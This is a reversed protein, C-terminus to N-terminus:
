TAPEKTYYDSYERRYHRGYYYPNRRVDVRNLVAGVYKVKALDLQELAAKAAGRSTMEAGVVFVVGTASHAIISADTVAMVPPSDVIVWDFHDNLSHMFNNFKRSGLLEAPNPPHKGAAILWLNPTETVKVADDAKADGVMVNSLGPELDAAFFEHMKPRRMDADILLVRQGALALSMALNASVVSKGEGPGTSTVVISKPGADASSFLVNTRIGRFAEAFEMPTGDGILPPGTTKKRAMLPVMGLFPLGLQTKIEDPQKIRSDLYEFFFSLAIGLFCGGFIALLLNNTKNPSSPSRPTEAPDVVRINSTKLEGSIGTERSREQLATFMTQNSTADRQLVGYQISNRNLAQAEASQQDLSAQLARENTLAAQYDNRFAQVVKQVEAGIRIETTEIASLVKVMDPHRAGLKEDMQAKQRQLENLQGKLQQIFTNNLIAPFTDVATRDQQIGRLQNYVSEKEIRETRARTVAANLDALRQVVINQRDELAVAGTQERYQQLAQESQELAQRQEATRATLFETAEKTALFKFELNQAIYQRALANAVRSALAPDSSRVSVDVLRSNRIPTVTLGGLFRDIIRSQTASEAAGPSEAVTSKAPMAFYGRVFQVGAGIWASPNLSVAAPGTGAFLPHEWLKEVELTRRALARSQLIRYQTQYYDNTTKNQEYVEEFKVVNPNDNEILIQVRASFIPTATFTYVTVSGVVLLLATIATWRRKHLVRLYDLLHVEDGAVAQGYGAGYGGYGPPQGDAPQPAPDGFRTDRDGTAAGRAGAARRTMLSADLDLRVEDRKRDRAQEPM